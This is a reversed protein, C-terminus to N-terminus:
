EGHDLEKEELSGLKGPDDNDMFVFEVRQEFSEKESDIVHKPIGYGIMSLRKEDVKFQRIFKVVMNAGRHAALEWLGEYRDGTELEDPDTSIVEIRMRVKPQKELTRTIEDFFPVVEPKIKASGPEFVIQNDLHIEFRDDRRVVKVKDELARDVLWQKLVHFSEADQEELWNRTSSRSTIKIQPVIGKVPTKLSVEGGELEMSSGPFFKFMSKLRNTDMTSMTLLMVFFTIMLTVLDGFTVMWANKNIKPGSGAM